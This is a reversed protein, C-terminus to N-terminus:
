DFGYGYREIRYQHKYLVGKNMARTICQKNGCITKAFSNISKYNCTTNNILDTVLISTGQRIAFDDHKWKTYNASVYELNDANNNCVDGDKHRIVNYNNPNDIFTKAVLADVCYQHKVGNYCLWVRYYHNILKPHIANHSRRHVSIIDGNRNIKYRTGFGPIYKFGEERILDMALNKLNM